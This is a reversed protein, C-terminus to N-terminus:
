SVSDRSAVPEVEDPHFFLFRGQWVLEDTAPDDDVTVAIHEAGDVDRFVGMVTARLGEYFLDQADARHTPRLRVASGKTVEVGAVIVSDTWPDVAEDAAPDWWPVAEDDPSPTGLVPFPDAEGFPEPVGGISRVAGHLREWVEPSMDDCRDIIAAARPDTGRAENKEEDTLTLVRLALIEDIETADYLDGPSESAVEPHDYLIIPSALVVDDSGILVPFAGDSRCDAVAARATEPPDLLSVFVGDDVALMTHVAVLSQGIIEQRRTNSGSWATMNQVTVTVKTLGGPGVAPRASVLVRGDVTKRRRVFRGVVVGDAALIPDSEEGGPFRFVEQYGPATLAAGTLAAGTLAAGTLAPGTLATLDLPPLDVVQDVAEEWGVYTTDDVELADVPVFRPEDGAVAGAAGAVAGAAGADGAVAPAEAVPAEVARERVQLCRIRVTLSCRAGPDVLTETHMSWREAGDSESFARPTLVGFQWRLQNKASSARYPYLVYGEYLVADAVARAVEFRDFRDFRDATTTV